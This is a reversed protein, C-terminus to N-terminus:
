NKIIQKYYKMVTIYSVGAKKAVTNKNIKENELRMLNVANEIKQKARNSRAEIAKKTANRKKTSVEKECQKKIKNYIDNHENKLLEQITKIEKDNLTIRM